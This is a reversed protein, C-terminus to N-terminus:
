FLPLKEAHARPTKREVLGICEGDLIYGIGCIETATEIALIKM